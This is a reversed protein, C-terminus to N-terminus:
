LSYRRRLPKRVIEAASSIDPSLIEADGHRRTISLRAGQSSYAWDDMEKKMLESVITEEITTDSLSVPRQV